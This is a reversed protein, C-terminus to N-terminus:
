VRTGRAPKNQAHSDLWHIWESKKILVRRGIRIIAKSLGNIGSKWIHYRLAKESFPCSPDSLLMKVTLIEKGFGTQSTEQNM